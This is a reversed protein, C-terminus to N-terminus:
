LRVNHGFPGIAEVILVPDFSFAWGKKVWLVASQLTILVGEGMKILMLAWTALSLKGRKIFLLLFNDSDERIKRTM